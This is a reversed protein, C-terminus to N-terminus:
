IKKVLNTRREIEKWLALYSKAADSTPDFAHIPAQKIGMREINARAPIMVDCFQGPYQKKNKLVLSRHLSKRRDFMNFFPIIEIKSKGMETIYERVKIFTQESLVAPIMPMIIYDSTAFVIDSLSSISPPCDFIFVDFNEKLSDLIKNINKKGKKSDDLVIDMNRYAFGAPIIKLNKYPTPEILTHILKRNKIIKKLKTEQLLEVGLHFTAAGQPDLDWVLTRYGNHASLYAMNVATTTKGVGGKMNYCAITKM